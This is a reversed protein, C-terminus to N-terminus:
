PIALSLCSFFVYLATISKWDNVEGSELCKVIEVGRSGIMGSFSQVDMEGYM